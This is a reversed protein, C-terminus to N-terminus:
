LERWFGDKLLRYYELMESLATIDSQTLLRSYRENRGKFNVYVEEAYVINEILDEDVILDVWESVGGGIFDDVDDYEDFPLSVIRGDINFDIANIFVWNSRHYGVLFRLYGYGSQDKSVYLYCCHNRSNIYYPSNIHYHFERNIGPDDKVRVRSSLYNFRQLDLEYQADDVFIRLSSVIGDISASLSTIDEVGELIDAHLMSVEECFDSIMELTDKLAELENSLNEISDALALTNDIDVNRLRWSSPEFTEIDFGLYEEAFEIIATFDTTDQFANKRTLSTNAHITIESTIISDTSELIYEYETIISDLLPEDFDEITRIQEISALVDQKFALINECYELGSRSSEQYTSVQSCAMTLNDVAAQEEDSRGCSVSILIAFFAVFTIMLRNTYM